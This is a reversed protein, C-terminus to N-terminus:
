PDNLVIVMCRIYEVWLTAVQEWSPGDCRHLNRPPWSRSSSEDELLRVAIGMAAVDQKQVALQQASQDGSHPVGESGRFEPGRACIMSRQRFPIRTPFSSDINATM